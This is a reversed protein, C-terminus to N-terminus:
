ALRRRHVRAPTPTRDRDPRRGTARRGPNGLVRAPAARSRRDGRHRHAIFAGPLGLRRQLRCLPACSRRTTMETGVIRVDVGDVQTTTASTISMDADPLPTKDGINTIQEGLPFVQNGPPYVMWVLAPSSLGGEGTESVGGNTDTRPPFQEYHALSTALRADVQATLNNTVFMVVVLAVVAYVGAVIVTSIAAVRLSAVNVRELRRNM